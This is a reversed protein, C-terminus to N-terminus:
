HGGIIPNEDQRIYIPDRRGFLLGAAAYIALMNAAQSANSGKAVRIEDGYGQIISEESQEPNGQKKVLINGNEDITFYCDPEAVIELPKGESNAQNILGNIVDPTMIFYPFFGYVLKNLSGLLIM